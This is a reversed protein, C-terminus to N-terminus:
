LAKRDLARSALALAPGGLACAIAFATQLQAVANVSVALDRAMPSLLGGFVFAGTSFALPGLLLAILAARPAAQPSTPAPPEGLPAPDPISPTMGRHIYM